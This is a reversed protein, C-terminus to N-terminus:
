LKMALLTSPVHYRLLYKHTPLLISLPLSLMQTQADLGGGRSDTLSSPLQNCDSGLGWISCTPSAPTEPSPAQAPLSPFSYPLSNHQPRSPPLLQCSEKPLVRQMRGRAGVQKETIMLRERTCEMGPNM